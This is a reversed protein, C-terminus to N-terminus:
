SLGRKRSSSSPASRILFRRGPWMPRQMVAPRPRTRAGAAPGHRIGAGPTAPARTVQGATVPGAAPQGRHGTVAAMVRPRGTARRGRVHAIRIEGPGKLAPWPGPRAARPARAEGQTVRPPEGHVPTPQGGPAVSTAVRRLTAASAERPRVALGTAPHPATVPPEAPRAAPRLVFGATTQPGPVAAISAQPPGTIGLSVARPLGTAGTSAAHPLGAPGPRAARLPGAAATSAARPLGATGLNPAGRPGAPGGHDTEPPRALRGAPGTVRAHRRLVAVRTGRPSGARAMPPRLVPAVDPRTGPPRGPDTRPRVGAQRAPVAASRAM